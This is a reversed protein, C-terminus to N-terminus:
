QAAQLAALGAKAWKYHTRGHAANAAMIGGLTGDAWPTGPIPSALQEPTLSALLALTEARIQLGIAILEDLPKGRHQTAWEETWAHIGAMVEDRSQPQGDDRTRSPMGPKGALHRQFMTNWNREILSTHIFHDAFSWLPATPSAESTTVGRYLQDTPM